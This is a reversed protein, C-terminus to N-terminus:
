APTECDHRQYRDAIVAQFPGALAEARLDADMLLRQRLEVVVFRLRVLQVFQRQRLQVFGVRVVLRQRV